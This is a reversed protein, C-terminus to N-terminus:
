SLEKTSERPLYPLANQPTKLLIHVTVANQVNDGAPLCTQMSITSINHFFAKTLSSVFIFEESLTM